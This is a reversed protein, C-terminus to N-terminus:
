GWLLGWRCVVGFLLGFLGCCCLGLGLVLCVFGLGWVLDCLVVGTMVMFCWDVVFSDFLVILCLVM